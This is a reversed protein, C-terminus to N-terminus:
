KETRWPVADYAAHRWGRVSSVVQRAVPNVIRAASRGAVNRVSAPSSSGDSGGASGRAFPTEIGHPEPTPLLSSDTTKLTSEAFDVPVASASPSVQDVLHAFRCSKGRNCVADTDFYRCLRVTCRLPSEPTVAAVAAAPIARTRLFGTGCLERSRQSGADEVVLTVNVPFREADSSRTHSNSNPAVPDHERAAASSSTHRPSADRTIFTAM